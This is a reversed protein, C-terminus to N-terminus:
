ISDASKSTSRSALFRRLADNFLEASEINVIHRGPLSIHRGDAVNAAIAELDSPPCVPDDSGSIALVPCSIKALRGRFDADALAAGCGVYGSISTQQFSALCADVVGSAAAAFGPTFWRELTGALLPSLGHASVANMRETWSQASGIRAATACLVIKDFRHAAHLALWQGLLGGISLGCFHTREIGLSDMLHLVDRGLEAMSFPPPPSSSLGHGRRDYRLIRFQGELAEAQCDWMHLDTGLSNCFVLWPKEDHSEDVRYHLRYHPLELYPM